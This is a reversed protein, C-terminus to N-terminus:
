PKLINVNTKTMPYTKHKWQKNLNRFDSLSSIQITKQDTNHFLHPEKNKNIKIESSYLFFGINWRNRLFMKMYSQYQIHDYNYWNMNKRWNSIHLIQKVLLFHEMSCSKVIKFSTLYINRNGKQYIITNIKWWKIKIQIKSNLM